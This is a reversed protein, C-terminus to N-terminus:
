LHTNCRTRRRPRPASSCLPLPACAIPLSHSITGAARPTFGKELFRSDKNLSVRRRAGSDGCSIESSPYRPGLCGLRHCPPGPGCTMCNTHWIEPASLSFQRAHRYHAEKPGSRFVFPLIKFWHLLLSAGRAHSSLVVLRPPWPDTLRPSLYSLQRSQLRISPPRTLV